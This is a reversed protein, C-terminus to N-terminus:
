DFVNWKEQECQKMAAVEVTQGNTGETHLQHYHPHDMYSRKYSVAFREKVARGTIECLLQTTYNHVWYTRHLIHSFTNWLIMELASNFKFYNSSFVVIYKIRCISNLRMDSGHVAAHINFEYTNRYCLNECCGLIFLCIKIWHLTRCQNRPLTGFWVNIFLSIDMSYVYCEREHKEAM